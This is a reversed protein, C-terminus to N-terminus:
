RLSRIGIAYQTFSLATALYIPEYLPMYFLANHRSMFSSSYPAVGRESSGSRGSPNTWPPPPQHHRSSSGSGRHYANRSCVAVLRHPPGRVHRVLPNRFAPHFYHNTNNTKTQCKISRSPKVNLLRFSWFHMM